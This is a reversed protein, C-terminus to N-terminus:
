KVLVKEGDIIYIGPATAESLKRGQLDFIGKAASAPVVHVYDDYYDEIGTTPTNDIRLSFSSISKAVNKGIVIFARNANVNIHGGDDNSGTHTGDARYNEYVWYLKPQTKNSLYMYINCDNCDAGFKDNYYETPQYMQYLSGDIIIDDDEPNAKNAAEAVESGDYYFRYSATADDTKLIAPTCAPLLRVPDSVEGYSQFTIHKDTYDQVTRPYYAAIGAPIKASFGLMVSGLGTQTTGTEHYIYQKEGDPIEEIYWTDGEASLIVNSLGFFCGENTTGKQITLKVVLSGNIAFDQAEDSKVINWVKHVSEQSVGIGAAIDIDSVSGFDTFTGGGDTSVSVAINWQRAKTDNNYQYSGGNNLAHIHLGISNFSTFTSPLNNYTFELEIPTATTASTNTDSGGNVNPCLIGATVNNGTGKYAYNSTVTVSFPNEAENENNVVLENYENYATATVSADDTGTRNFVTSAYGYSMTGTSGVLLTDGIANHRLNNTGDNLRVICGGVPSLVIKEATDDDDLMYKTATFDKTNSQTHLSNLTLNDNRQIYMGGTEVDGDFFWVTRSDRHTNGDVVEGPLNRQVVNNYENAVLRMDSDGYAPRVTYFKGPKPKKLEDPMPGDYNKIAEYIENFYDEDTKGDIPSGVSAKKIYSANKKILRFLAALEENYIVCDSADYKELLEDVLNDFEEIRVFQWSSNDASGVDSFIEGNAAKVNTWGLNNDNAGTTVISYGEYETNSSPLIYWTDDQEDVAGDTDQDIWTMEELQECYLSTVKAETPLACMLKNIDYVEGKFVIPEEAKVGESNYVDITLATGDYTLVVKLKSYKDQTHMFTYTDYNGSGNGKCVIFKADKLYVQFHKDYNDDTPNKSSLLCSGFANYSRETLEYEATIRWSEGSKLPKDLTALTQKGDSGVVPTINTGKFLELNSSRVTKGPTAFNHVDVQLYDDFTLANDTIANQSGFAEAFKTGEFYFINDLSLNAKDDAVQELAMRNDNGNFQAYYENQPTGDAAYKSKVNYIYYWHPYDYDSPKGIQEHVTVDPLPQLAYEVEHKLMHIQQSLSVLTAVDNSTAATSTKGIIDTVLANYKDAKEQNTEGDALKNAITTKVEGAIGSVDDAGIIYKKLLPAADAAEVKIFQWLAGADNVSGSVVKNEDEHNSCWANNQAWNVNPYLKELGITYGAVGNVVNPQVNWTKGAPGFENPAICEMPTVASKINVSYAEDYSADVETFYFLSTASFNDYSGITEGTETSEILEIYTDRSVFNAYYMNAGVTAVPGDGGIDINARRMVPAQMSTSQRRLNRILYLSGSSREFPEKITFKIDLVDGDSVKSYDFTLVGDTNTVPSADGASLNGNVNVSSYNHIDPCKLTLKAKALDDASIFMRSFPLSYVVDNYTFVTNRMVIENATITVKKEETTVAVPIFVFDTCVGGAIETSSDDSTDDPTETGTKYTYTDTNEQNQPTTVGPAWQKDLNAVSLYKGSADKLPVGFRHTDVTSITWKYPETTVTGNNALYLTPNAVSRFVLKGDPTEECYWSYAKRADSEAATNHYGGQEEIDVADGNLYIEKNAFDTGNYADAYIRYKNGAIPVGSLTKTEPYNTNYEEVLSTYGQPTDRTYITCSADQLANFYGIAQDVKDNNDSVDDPLIYIESLAMKADATANQVRIYKYTDGLPVNTTFSIKSGLSTSIGSEIEVWDDAAGTKSALINISAPSDADTREMYLYIGQVEDLAFQFYHNGTGDVTSVSSTASGDILLSTNAAPVTTGDGDPYITIDSNTKFAGWIVQASYIDSRSFIHLDQVYEADTIEYAVVFAFPQGSEWNIFRTQEGSWYRDATTKDDDSNNSVLFVRLDEKEANRSDNHSVFAYQYSEVNVGALNWKTGDATKWNKIYLPQPAASMNGYVDVYTGNLVSKIYYYEYTGDADADHGEMTFMYKENYVYRDREKSKDLLVGTGNNYLFGTYDQYDTTSGVIAANYIMFKAGSAVLEDLSAYRTNGDRYYKTQYYKDAWVNATGLVLLLLCLYFHKTRM